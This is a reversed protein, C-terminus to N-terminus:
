FFGAGYIMSIQTTSLGYPEGKMRREMNGAKLSVNITIVV